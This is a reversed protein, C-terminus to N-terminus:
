EKGPTTLYELVEIDKKSVRFTKAHILDLATSAVDSSGPAL